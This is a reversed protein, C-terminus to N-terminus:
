TGIGFLEWLLRDRNEADGAPIVEVRGGDFIRFEDGRLTRRGSGTQLCVIPSARFPSDPASQCWYNTTVFDIPYQPEATFAYYPAWSGAKYEEVVTGYVSDPVLRWVGNPEQTETYLSFPLPALPCVGGVGVDCLYDQGDSATVRLVRHRRMPIGPDADRLFRAFYETVAFGLERLLLAFLGNLEFCYGGRRRTVIKDFLADPELTFPVGRIIDMTEYPVHTLHATQLARLTESSTDGPRVDTGIRALYASLNM